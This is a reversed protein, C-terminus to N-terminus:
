GRSRPTAACRRGHRQAGPRHHPAAATPDRRGAAGDVVRLEGTEEDVVNRWLRQLFRQSGVVARTEWPRSVDLPGMSMEYLRFTDAGYADFMDDPTVMNKLSKGMKGYERNVPKGEGPSRATASGREVEEAPVYSGREDTYAYAQIMGQNFLRHFPERAPCTAWTSCCRTGSGPTCCTCCPTSPAASTCTSAAPTARDGQPGMWYREVEPDVFRETNTPDLYRLEYWCSGAWQPMTNTERRYQKPGDGLDLTM